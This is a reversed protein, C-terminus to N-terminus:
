SADIQLGSFMKLLAIDGKLVSERHLFSNLNSHTNLKMKKWNDKHLTCILKQRNYSKAKPLGMLRRFSIFIVMTDFYSVNM